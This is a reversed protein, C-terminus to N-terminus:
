PPLSPSLLSVLSDMLCYAHHPKLYSDSLAIHPSHLDLLSFCDLGAHTSAFSSASSTSFSLNGQLTSLLVDYGTVLLAHDYCLLESLRARMEAATAKCIDVEQELRETLDPAPRTYNPGHLVTEKYPTLLNASNILIEWM